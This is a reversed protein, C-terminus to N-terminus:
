SEKPGYGVKQIEMSRQYGGRATKLMMVGSAKMSRGMPTTCPGTGKRRITGSNEQTNRAM